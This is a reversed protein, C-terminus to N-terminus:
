KPDASGVVEHAILILNSAVSAWPLTCLRLLVLSTYEYQTRIWKAACGGLLRQGLPTGAHLWASHSPLWPIASRFAVRQRLSGDTSAM